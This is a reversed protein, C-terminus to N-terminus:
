TGIHLRHLPNNDGAREQGADLFDESPLTTDFGEEQRAIREHRLKQPQIEDLVLIALRKALDQVSDRRSIVLAVQRRQQNPTRAVASALFVREHGLYGTKRQVSDEVRVHQSVASRRNIGVQVLVQELMVIAALLEHVEDLGLAGGHEGSM